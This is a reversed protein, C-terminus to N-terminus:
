RGCLLRLEWLRMARMRVYMIGLTLRLQSHALDFGACPFLIRYPRVRVPTNHFDVNNHEVAALCRQLCGNEDNLAIAVTKKWGNNKRDV